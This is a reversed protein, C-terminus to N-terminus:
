ADCVGATRYEPHHHLGCRPGGAVCQVYEDDAAAPRAARERV